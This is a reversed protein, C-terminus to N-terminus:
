SQVNKHVSACEDFLESLKENCVDKGTLGLNRLVFPLISFFRVKRNCVKCFPKGDLSNHDMAVFDVRTDLFVDVNDLMKSLVECLVNDEGCQAQQLKEQLKTLFCNPLEKLEDQLKTLFQQAIKAVTEVAKDVSKVSSVFPTLLEELGETKPQFKKNKSGVSIHCWMDGCVLSKVDSGPASQKTLYNTVAKKICDDYFNLKSIVSDYYEGYDVVTLDSRSYSIFEQAKSHEEFCINETLRSLDTKISPLLAEFVSLLVRQGFQRGVVDVVYIDRDTDFFADDYKHQEWFEMPIKNLQKEPKSGSFAYCRTEKTQSRFRCRVLTWRDPIEESRKEAFRRIRKYLNKDLDDPRPGDGSSSSIDGDATATVNRGQIDTLPKGEQDRLLVNSGPTALAQKLPEDPLSLMHWLSGSRMNRGFFVINEIQKKLVVVKLDDPVNEDVLLSGLKDQWQHVFHFVMRCVRDDPIGDVIDKYKHDKFLCRWYEPSNCEESFVNEWFPMQTYREDLGAAELSSSVTVTTGSIRCSGQFSLWETVIGLAVKAPSEGKEILDKCLNALGNERADADERELIQDLPSPSNYNLSFM